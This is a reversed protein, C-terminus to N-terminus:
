GIFRLRCTGAVDVDAAGAPLDSFYILSLSNVVPVAATGDIYQSMQVFPPIKVYRQLFAKSTAGGTGSMANLTIVEDMLVFFRSVSDVRRQAQPTIAALPGTLATAISPSVGNANKDVVLMVRIVASATLAELSFQIRLNLSRNVVKNGDRLLATDGAAFSNLAVVTGTTTADDSFSVDNFKKEPTLQMVMNSNNSVTADQRRLTPKKFKPAGHSTASAKRKM